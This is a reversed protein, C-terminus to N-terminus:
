GDAAAITILGHIVFIDYILLCYKMESKGESRMIRKHFLKGKNACYKSEFTQWTHIRNM